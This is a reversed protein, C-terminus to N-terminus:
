QLKNLDEKSISKNHLAGFGTNIGYVPGEHKNLYEDLFLKCTTILEISESSLEVHVKTYLLEEIREFTLSVPSISYKKEM